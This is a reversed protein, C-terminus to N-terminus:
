ACGEARFQRPGPSLAHYLPRCGERFGPPCCSRQGNPCSPRRMGLGPSIGHDRKASGGLAPPSAEFMATIGELPLLRAVRGDHGRGEGDVGQRRHLGGELLRHKIRRALCAEYGELRRASTDLSALLQQAPFGIGLLEGVIVRVAAMPPMVGLAFVVGQQLGDSLDDETDMQQVLAKLLRRGIDGIDEQFVDILEVAEQLACILIELLAQLVHEEPVLTQPYGHFMDVFEVAEEVVACVSRRKEVPIDGDFSGDIAHRLQEVIVEDIDADISIGVVFELEVKTVDAVFPRIMVFIDPAYVRGHTSICTAPRLEQLAQHRFGFSEARHKDLDTAVAIFDFFAATSSTSATQYTHWPSMRLNLDLMAYIAVVDEELFEELDFKRSLPRRDDRLPECFLGRGIGGVGCTGTIRAAGCSSV